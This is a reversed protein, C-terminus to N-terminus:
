PKGQQRKALTANYRRLWLHPTCLPTEHEVRDPDVPKKPHQRHFQPGRRPANGVLALQPPPPPPPQHHAAPMVM